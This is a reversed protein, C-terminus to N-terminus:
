IITCYRRVQLYFTNYINHAGENADFDWHSWNEDKLLVVIESSLSNEDRFLFGIDNVHYANINM